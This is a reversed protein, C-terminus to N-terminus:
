IHSPLWSEMALSAAGLAGADDGLQSRILKVKVDELAPAVGMSATMVDQCFADGLATLPGHLLYLEPDLVLQVCSLVRAYDAVVANWVPGRENALSLMATRLDEPVPAEEDIGALRRYTMPASLRHHMERTQGGSLPWPWLGIEGAAHHSGRLLGGEQMCATGFGSRVGVVVYNNVERHSGFWREALAVARLSGELTVPVHFQKQVIERLPINEWGSVFSYMLSIGGKSDVLGPAGLGIGLLPLSQEERWGTLGKQIAELVESVTPRPSLHVEETKVVKGAFDVGVIQVRDSTFEVGAFWGPTHRVALRRKPRGMTGHELGSEDLHGTGILQDVYLGVTSASLNLSDALATRSTAKGSRIQIVTSALLQRLDSTKQRM